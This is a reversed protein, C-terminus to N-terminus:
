GDRPATREDDAAAVEVGRPAGGDVLGEGRFRGDGLSGVFCAHGCVGVRLGVGHDHHRRADREEDYLYGRPHSHFRVSGDVEDCGGDGESAEREVAAVLNEEGLKLAALDLRRLGLGGPLAAGHEGRVQAVRHAADEYVSLDVRRRQILHEPLEVGVAVVLDVDLLELEREHRHADRHLVRLHRVTVHLHPELLEVLVAVPQDRSRFKARAHRVPHQLLCLVDRDPRVGARPARRNVPADVLSRDRTAPRRM